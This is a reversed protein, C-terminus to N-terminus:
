GLDLPIHGNAHLDHSERNIGQRPDFVEFKPCFRPIRAAFFYFHSYKDSNKAHDKALHGSAIAGATISDKEM